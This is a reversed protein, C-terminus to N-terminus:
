WIRGITLSAGRGSNDGLSGQGLAPAAPRVFDIRLEVRNAGLARFESGVGAQYIAVTPGAHGTSQQALDSSSSGWRTFAVGAGVLGYFGRLSNSNRPGVVLSAIATGLQGVNRADLCPPAPFSTVCGINPPPTVSGFYAADIRADWLRGSAVRAFGEAGVMNSPNATIWGAYGSLGLGFRPVPADQAALSTAALAAGLGVIVIYSTAARVRM